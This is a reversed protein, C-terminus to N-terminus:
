TRPTLGRIMLSVPRIGHSTEWDVRRPPSVARGRSQSTSLGAVMPGISAGCDARSQAAGAPSSRAVCPKLFGDHVWRWYCASGGKIIQDLDVNARPRAHPAAILLAEAAKRWRRHALQDLSRVGKGATERPRQGAAAVIQTHM